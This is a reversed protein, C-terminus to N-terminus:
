EDEKCSCIELHIAHGTGYQRAFVKLLNECNPCMILGMEM